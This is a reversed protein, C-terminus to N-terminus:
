RIFGEYNRMLLQAELQKMTDIVVGVVILLGTSSIQLSTVGFWGTAMYPIVSVIGLFIAGAWTIRVLVRMIYEGTPRGPRIGPVFGGQKQLNEALNQQQFVVLTYFFSFVVVLVFIAVYFGIAGASFGGNQGPSFIDNVFKATDRVWATGSTVFYQAALSPLIVISFAFILPIMGASNVRLPIHSQGSQRYMKGARFVSKAYQVPVKRIAEQMWVMSAVLAISLLTLLLLGFLGISSNFVQTLLSPMGAVIGAFIIISIGNGIGNETILEGLWVLFMSGATLVILATVTPLADNGTFGPHFHFATTSKGALNYLIVLQAYGQVLCLPVSMWYQYLELKHQGSEGEKQLNALSPFLPTVLQMIITATIYPYVGLAAVSVRRLAGGSFLNFLGLFQNQEFATQLQRPDVNPIPIHAIFRFVVLIAATFLLKKRVDEQHIADILAQLLRPRAAAQQRSAALAM